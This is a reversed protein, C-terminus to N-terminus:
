DAALKRRVELVERRLEETAVETELVRGVGKKWTDELGRIEGAAEEQVRRRTVTLLDIDRKAEALERELSKLEAELQYNGM